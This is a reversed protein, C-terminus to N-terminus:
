LSSPRSSIPISAERGTLPLPVPRTACRAASIFIAPRPRAASITLGGAQSGNGITTSAYATLGGAFSSATAPPSSTVPLRRTGSTLSAPSRSPRMRRPPASVSAVPPISSSSQTARREAAWRSSASGATAFYAAGNNAYNRISSQASVTIDGNYQIINNTNGLYLTSATGNNILINGTTTASGSSLSVAPQQAMASPPPAQAIIGKTLLLLTGTANGLAQPTFPFAGGGSVAYDVGAVAAVITGNADTKLISSPIHFLTTSRYQLGLLTDLNLSGLNLLRNRLPTSNTDGFVGNVSFKAYPSSSGIGVNGANFYTAGGTASTISTNINGNNYFNLAGTSAGAVFRLSYFGDDSERIALAGGLLTLADASSPNVKGISVNGANTVVFSTGTSSGVAFAPAAGNAATPNISFQAWPTSSGLGLFGTSGSYQFQSAIGANGFQVTSSAYLGGTLQLATGTANVATAGFVGPTFPFFALLSSSSVKQNFFNWDTSSLYGDSGSGSQSISFVGTSTNFSLPGQAQISTSALLGLSSTATLTYGGASNGVLIKGYTPATALGTGGYLVGISSTASVLGNNAQLPGNLTGIYLSTTTANTSLLNPFTSTASSTATFSGALANIGLDSSGNVSLTRWPTTTGVGVRTSTAIVGGLYGAAESYVTLIPTGGIQATYSNVTGTAANGSVPLDAWSVQGADTDFSLAGLQLNDISTIGSSYDYTLAGGGVDFGGAFTSTATTSTANIYDAVIGGAVSLKAYPSTTGIGVNGSFYSNGTGLVSLNGTTTAGGSITLGGGQTGNGITSSANVIIGLTTTPSLYGNTLTWQQYATGLLGLSSTATLTYGGSSNGVLINGYSPASTLGTGGYLVGISSTASVLGNNAQLPGNLNSLTLSSASASGFTAGGVANLQGTITSSGTVSLLSTTASIASVGSFYSTSSAAIGQTFLLVTGTANANSGFSSVGPTFPFFALLSSSSVKQNFFNWDTSSLYGNAGSGSQTISFVGTSSNFSLPGQTQISTSALLGLSSTSTLTYGGTLNGVLIQSASPATTLGTGGYLVGISTTASVVGNRADLPGNLNSLTLSSVTTGGATVSGFTAGGVANLQGTITSSGTVSLLSTTASIASIGSFHSTSSASIGQTFLLVTGTANAM